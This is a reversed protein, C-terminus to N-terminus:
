AALGFQRRVEGTGVLRSLLRYNRLEHRVKGAVIAPHIRILPCTVGTGLRFSDTVEAIGGIVSWVLPSQGQNDHWPHYHDSILAFSFGIEEARAAQRVLARPGHEESSLSFGLELM